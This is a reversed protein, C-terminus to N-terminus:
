DSHSPHEQTGRDALSTGIVGLEHLGPLAFIPPAMIFNKLWDRVTSKLRATRIASPAPPYKASSYRTTIKAFTSESTATTVATAEIMTSMAAQITALLM